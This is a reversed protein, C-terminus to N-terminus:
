YFETNQWWFVITYRHSKLVKNLGHGIEKGNFFTLRNKKPKITIGDETFFEGGDFDDNLYLISNFDEDNSARQAEDHIHMPSFSDIPWTQLEAGRCTLKVRLKSEIYETIDTIIQEDELFRRNRTPYFHFYHNGEDTMKKFHSALKNKYYDLMFEPYVDDFVYM